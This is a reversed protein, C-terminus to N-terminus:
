IDSKKHVVIAIVGPGANTGIVSGINGELVEAVNLKEKAAKLLVDKQKESLAHAIAINVEQDGFKEYAKEVLYPIVKSKGRVKGAPSVVGDNNLTLIPKVNLLTGILASAKGIRGNKKLFELTDVGFYIIQDEIINNIIAIIANVDKEGKEILKACEYAILGLGLSASKADIINIDSDSLMNKAITASQYTGSLNSSIHISIVSHGEALLSTYVNHFDGPSPQSTRPMVKTGKLKEFFSETNLDIGDKYLDEGFHVNLPVVKIDYKEIIEQSLDATSDVVLKIAM